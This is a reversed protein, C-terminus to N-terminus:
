SSKKAASKAAPKASAPKASAGGGVIAAFKARDTSSLPYYGVKEVVSQGDESMVWQAIKQVDGTPQGAFYWYLYRSIPYKAALVNEM